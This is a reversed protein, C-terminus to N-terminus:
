ILLMADGFSYFRYGSQRAVQYADLITERGAFASVLALLTSRPLHFNTILADVVRFRYGPRIFLSTAEDIPVVPKWPCADREEIYPDAIGASCLGATELVRVSTTGVAVIRGRALKTENIMAASDAPLVAQETHIQHDEIQEERVPQFTDLGIHLTCYAMRVGQDRLAILLEPTFHLGATPAAASGPEQSYITQYREPDTLPSHIYPPLPVEGLQGLLPSLPADFRVIREAEEGEGIVVGEIGAGGAGEFALRNGERVHKGGILGRWTQEGERRLLLFEVRGGTPVKRGRLRAPIVRTRNFVLLDGPRLYSGIDGFRHHEIGGSARDLVLLRSADRPDIPTQAIQEPPLYYDFDSTKM